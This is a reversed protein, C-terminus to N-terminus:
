IRRQAIDIEDDWSGRSVREYGRDIQSLSDITTVGGSDVGAISGEVQRHAVVFEHRFVDWTCAVSVWGNDATFLRQNDGLM